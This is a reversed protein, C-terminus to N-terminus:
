LYIANHLNCRARTCAVYYGKLTTEMNETLELEPDKLTDIAKKIATNLDDEIHVTEAGLGKLSFYTGVIVNPDKKITKAKALVDFINVGKNGLNRLLKISNTLEDDDVEKILYEYFSKYNSMTYNTYEKDLYKYQKHLVKKGANATVVALPCAFIDKLPRTLVYGKNQEHLKVIRDIIMANTATIYITKGDTEPESTGKFAFSSSLYKKGYLEVKNAIESSCRFSKTLPLTVADDALIDFGNVLNM